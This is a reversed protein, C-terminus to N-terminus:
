IKPFYWDRMRQEIERRENHSAELTDNSWVWWKQPLLLKDEFWLIRHVWTTWADILQYLSPDDLELAQMIQLIQDEEWEPEHFFPMDNVFQDWEIFGGLLKWSDRLKNKIRSPSFWYMVCMQHFVQSDHNVFEEEVLIKIKEWMEALQPNQIVSDIWERRLLEKYEDWLSSVEAKLTALNEETGDAHSKQRTRLKFLDKKGKKNRKYAIDQIWAFYNPQWWARIIRQNMEDRDIIHGNIGIVKGEKEFFLPAKPNSSLSSIWSLYALTFLLVMEEDQSAIWLKRITQKSIPFKHQSYPVRHVSNWISEYLWEGRKRKKLVRRPDFNSIYKKKRWTVDAVIQAVEAHYDRFKSYSGLSDSFSPFDLAM